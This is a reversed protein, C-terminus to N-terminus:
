IRSISTIKVILYLHNLRPIFDNLSFLSAWFKGFSLVYLAIAVFLLQFSCVTCEVYYSCIQQGNLLKLRRLKNEIGGGTFLRFNNWERWKPAFLDKSIASWMAHRTCFVTKQTSPELSRPLLIAQWLHYQEECHLADLQAWHRWRSSFM